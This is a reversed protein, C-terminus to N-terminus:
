PTAPSVDLGLIERIQKASLVQRRRYAALAVVQEARRERASEMANRTSLYVVGVAIRAQNLPGVADPELARRSEEPMHPKALEFLERAETDGLGDDLTHAMRHRLKGIRSIASALDGPIVELAQALALRAPLRLGKLQEPTGESFAESIGEDLLDVILSFGRILLRFPDDVNLIDLLRAVDPPTDQPQESASM